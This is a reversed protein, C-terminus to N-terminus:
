LGFRMLFRSVPGGVNVLMARDVRVLAEDPGVQTSIESRATTKGIIQLHIGDPEEYVGPCQGLGCRMRAPTLNKLAMKSRWLNCVFNTDRIQM